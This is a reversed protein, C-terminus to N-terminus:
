QKNIFSLQKKTTVSYCEFGGEYMKALEYMAPAFGRDALYNYEKLAEEFRGENAALQADELSAHVFPSLILASTLLLSKLNPKIM